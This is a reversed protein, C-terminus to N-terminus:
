RLIKEISSRLEDRSSASLEPGDAARDFNDLAVRLLRAKLGPQEADLLGILCQLVFDAAAGRLLVHPGSDRIDPM